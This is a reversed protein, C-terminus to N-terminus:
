KINPNTYFYMKKVVGHAHYSFIHEIGPVTFPKATLDVPRWEGFNINTNKTIADDGETILAYKFKPLINKTFYDVRKNPWHMLVDKVILLDGSDVNDIDTSHYFHVNDKSFKKKNDDIVTKVIDYGKYTKEKPINILSMIQWDGCGLDVYTQYKPDDFYKQLIKRYEITNEKTSGPGSGNTWFDTAYINSFVKEEKIFFRKLTRKVFYLARDRWGKVKYGLHIIKRLFVYLYTIFNRVYYFESFFRVMEKIFSSKIKYDIIRRMLCISLFRNKYKARDNKNSIEITDEIFNSWKKFFNESNLFIKQYADYNSKKLNSLLERDKDLALIARVFSDVNREIIFRKQEEPLVEPIIGVDTSIIACGSAMAEILPLPTGECKSAILLIDTNKLINYTEQKSLKQSASDITNIEISSTKKLKMLAPLIVTHLGKLDYDPGFYSSGSNSNGIWTIQLKDKSKFNPKTSIIVNDFIVDRWPKPYINIRSYIKHLEKSVTYYNDVFSFFSENEIIDCEQLFMKDPISTVIAAKLLPKLKPNLPDNIFYQLLDRLYVRYFFHIFDIKSIANLADLFDNYDKYDSVYVVRVDYRSELLKVLYQAINDFAWGKVDAVLLITKKKM